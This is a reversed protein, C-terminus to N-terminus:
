NWWITWKEQRYRMMLDILVDHSATDFTKTFDVYFSDMVRLSLINKFIMDKTSNECKSKLM